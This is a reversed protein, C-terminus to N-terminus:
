YLMGRKNQNPFRRMCLDCNRISFLTWNHGGRVDDRWVLAMYTGCTVFNDMHFTEIPLLHTGRSSELSKYLIKKSFKLIEHIQMSPGQDYKIM